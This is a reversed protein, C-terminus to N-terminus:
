NQSRGLLELIEAQLEDDHGVWLHGGREFGVFKAGAIKTAVYQARSFTGYGDDRASVVLTPCRIADLAYPPLHKGLVSDSRLGAARRSVPLITEIIADVREREQPSANAVLSPPTALVWKIVQNRALHLAAWFLFDSDLVRFMLNEVSAPIPPSAVENALVPRYAIPVVLILGNVRDPHRIAMQTASPAGASAGLVAVTRIGLADLLCVNTDAQAAPSGDTPMPTRLYGFRSIAIVRVGRGALKHAFVMGQDQGGGSGHVILLPKGSGAAQYEIPGCATQVVTSGREARLAAASLDQDFKWWVWLAMLLALLGGAAITVQTRKANFV